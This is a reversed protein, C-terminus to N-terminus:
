ARHLFLRGEPQDGLTVVRQDALVRPVALLRVAAPVQVPLAARDALAPRAAPLHLYAARLHRYAAPQPPFVVQQLPFVAPLHRFVAQLPHFQAPRHRHQAAPQHAPSVAARRPPPVVVQRLAVAPLLLPRAAVPQRDEPRHRLPGALAPPVSAAPAERVARVAVTALRDAGSGARRNRTRRNPLISLM